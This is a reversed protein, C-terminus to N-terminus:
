SDICGLAVGSGLYWIPINKPWNQKLIYQKTQCYIYMTGHELFYHMNVHKIVSIKGFSVCCYTIYSFNFSQNTIQIAIKEAELMKNNNRSYM